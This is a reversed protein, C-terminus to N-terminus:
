DKNEIIGEVILIDKVHEEVCNAKFDFWDQRFSSNDIHWKFNSFPKKHNLAYILQNKLKGEPVIMETFDEMIRFSEFSELPEIRIFHEWEDVKEFDEEFFEKGDGNNFIESPVDIHEMTQPNLFCVHGCDLMEAIDHILGNVQSAETHKRYTNM